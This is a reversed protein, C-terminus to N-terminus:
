ICQFVSFKCHFFFCSIERIKHLVLSQLFEQVFAISKSKLFSFGEMIFLYIIFLCSFCQLPITAVLLQCVRQITVLLIALFLGPHLIIEGHQLFCKWFWKVLNSQKMRTHKHVCTSKFSPLLTLSTDFLCSM